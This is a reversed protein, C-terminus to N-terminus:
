ENIFSLLSFIFKSMACGHHVILYAWMEMLICVVLFLCGVVVAAQNLSCDGDDENYTSFFYNTCEPRACSNLSPNFVYEGVCEQRSM